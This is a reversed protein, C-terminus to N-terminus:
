LRTHTHTHRPADAAAAPRISRTRAKHATSSPTRRTPNLTECSSNASLTDVPRPRHVRARVLTRHTRTLVSLVQVHIAIELVGRDRVRVWSARGAQPHRCADFFGRPFAIQVHSRAVASFARLNVGGVGIELGGNYGGGGRSGGGGGGSEKSDLELLSLAEDATGILM